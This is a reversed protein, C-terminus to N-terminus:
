LLHELHQYGLVELDSTSLKGYTMQRLLKYQQHFGVVFFEIETAFTEKGNLVESESPNRTVGVRGAANPGGSIWSMFSGDTNIKWTRLLKYNATDLEWHRLTVDRSLTVLMDGEPSWVLDLVTGTHGKLTLVETFGNANLAWLKITGDNTGAALVGNLSFGVSWVQAEMALVQVHDNVLRGDAVIRLTWIRVTEDSSASALQLTGASVLRWSMARVHSTHGILQLAGHTPSDGRVDWVMISPDPSLAGTALYRSDPSWCVARVMSSHNGLIHLVKADRGSTDIVVTLNSDSGVALLSGDPSWDIARKAERGNGTDALLLGVNEFEKTKLNREWICVTGTYAGSAVRDGNASFAVSRVTHSHGAIDAMDCGLQHLEPGGDGFDIAEQWMEIQLGSTSAAITQVPVQGGGGPLDVVREKWDLSQHRGNFTSLVRLELEGGGSREGYITTGNTSSAVALHTKNPSWAVGRITEDTDILIADPPRPLYQVHELRWPDDLGTSAVVNLTEILGGDMAVALQPTGDYLERVALSNVDGFSATTALVKGSEKDWLTVTNNIDGYLLQTGGPLWAFARIDHRVDTEQRARIMTNTNELMDWLYAVGDSLSWALFRGDPSFQVARVTGEREAQQEDTLLRHLLWENGEESRRWICVARSMDVGAALMDGAPNWSLSYVSKDESCVMVVPPVVEPLLSLRSSTLPWIRVTGDNSGTALYDGRPSFQVARSWDSHGELEYFWYKQTTMRKLVTNLHAMIIEYKDVFLAVECAKLLARLDRSSTPNMNSGLLLTDSIRMQMDAVRRQELAEKENERALDLSATALDLAYEAREAQKM